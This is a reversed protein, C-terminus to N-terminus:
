HLRQDHLDAVRIFLEVGTTAVIRMTTGAGGKAANRASAGNM